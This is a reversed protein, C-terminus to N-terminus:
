KAYLPSMAETRTLAAATGSGAARERSAAPPSTIIRRLRALYAPAPSSLLSTKWRNEPLGQSLRCDGAAAASSARAWRATRGNSRRMHQASGAPPRLAPRKRGRRTHAEPRIAAHVDGRGDRGRLPLAVREVGLQEFRDIVRRVETKSYGEVRCSGMVLHLTGGTVEKAGAALNAGGSARLRHYPGPRLRHGYLPRAGRHGNKLLSHRRAERPVM